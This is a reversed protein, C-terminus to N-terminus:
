PEGATFWALKVKPQGIPIMLDMSDANVNSVLMIISIQLGTMPRGVPASPSVLFLM